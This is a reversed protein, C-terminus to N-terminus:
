WEKTLVGPNKIGMIPGFRGQSKFMEIMAVTFGQRPLRKVPLDILTPAGGSLEGVCHEVRWFEQGPRTVLHLNTIRRVQKDSLPHTPLGEPIKAKEGQKGM